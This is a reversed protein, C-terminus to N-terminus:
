DFRSLIVKLAAVESHRDVEYPTHKSVQRYNYDPDESCVICGFDDAPIFLGYESGLIGRRAYRIVCVVYENGRYSIVAKIYNKTHELVRISCSWSSEGLTVIIVHKM